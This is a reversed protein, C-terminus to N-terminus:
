VWNGERVWKQEYINMQVNHAVVQTNVFNAATIIYLIQKTLPTLEKINLANNYLEDTLDLIEKSLSVVGFDKAIAFHMSSCYNCNNKESIYAFLFERHGRNFDPANYLGKILIINLIELFKDWIEKNSELLSPMDIMTKNKDHRLIVDEILWMAIGVFILIILLDWSM